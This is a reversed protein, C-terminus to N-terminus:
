QFRRILLSITNKLDRIVHATLQIYKIQTKGIKMAFNLNNKKEIFIRIFKDIKIIDVTNKYNMVPLIM